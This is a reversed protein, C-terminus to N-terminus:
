ERIRWNKEEGYDLNPKDLQNHPVFAHWNWDGTHKSEIVRGNQYAELIATKWAPTNEQPIEEEHAIAGM